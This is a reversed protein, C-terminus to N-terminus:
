TDDYLTIHAFFEIKAYVHVLPPYWTRKGVGAWDFSDPYSALSPSPSPSAALDPSPYVAWSTGESQGLLYVTWGTTRGVNLLLSIHHVTCGSLGAVNLLVSPQVTCDELM